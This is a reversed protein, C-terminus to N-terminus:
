KKTFHDILAKLKTRLDVFGVADAERLILLREVSKELPEIAAKIQADVSESLSKAVSERHLMSRVASSLNGNHARAIQGLVIYEENSFSISIRKM